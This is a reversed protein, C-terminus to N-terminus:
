GYVYTVYPRAVRPMWQLSRVVGGVLAPSRLAQAVLRCWRQHGGVLRRQARIWDEALRPQWASVAAQLMPQVCLASRLAWTMGEGTFPEVYGAADGVVFLRDAAANRSRTLRPTGTWRVSALNAFPPFGAEDLIAAVAGAPSGAARVAGPDVAAAIDIEGDGLDVMGAYGRRTVAMQITGPEVHQPAARVHAGVGIRASPAIKPDSADGSAIATGGLGDAVVVAAARVHRTDGQGRLTVLRGDEDCAGIQAATAPEFTAGAAIAAAVLGGDLVTRRVAVGAALPVRASQGRYHLCFGDLPAASRPGVLHGCNVEELLRVGRASLCCGCVKDRPWAKKEVLLVRTGAEAALLATLAGAPGAGVVILPWQEKVSTPRAVM